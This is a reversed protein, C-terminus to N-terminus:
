TVPYSGEVEEVVVARRCRYGIVVVYDAPIFFGVTHFLEGSEGKSVGSRDM